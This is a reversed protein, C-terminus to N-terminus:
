LLSTGRIKHLFGFPLSFSKELLCGVLVGVLVVPWMLSDAPSAAGPLESIVATSTLM